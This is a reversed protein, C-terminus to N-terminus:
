ACARARLPIARKCPAKGAKVDVAPIFGMGLQSPFIALPVVIEMWTLTPDPIFAKLRLVVAGGQILLLQQGKHLRMAAALGVVEAHVASALSLTIGVMIRQAAGAAAFLLQTVGAFKFAAGARLTALSGEM